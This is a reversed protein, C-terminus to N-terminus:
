DYNKGNINYGYFEPKDRFRDSVPLLKLTCGADYGGNHIYNRLERIDERLRYHHWPMYELILNGSWKLKILQDVIKICIEDIPLHHEKEDRGSLHVTKINGHYNKIIKFIKKSKKFHGTDLTMPIGKEMLEAPTFVRKKGGFTEISFINGGNLKKIYNLAKQQNLSRQEDIKNPHITIDNVGLENAIDITLKGWKLFPEETIRGQTSHISFIKIDKKKFFGIVQEIEDEISLWLDSYRSPLALEIPFDVTKFIKELEEITNFEVRGGIKMM